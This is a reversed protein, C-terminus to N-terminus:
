SSGFPREAAEATLTPDAGNYPVRESPGPNFSGARSGVLEPVCKGTLHEQLSRRQRLDTFKQSM